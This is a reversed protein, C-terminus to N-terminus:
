ILKNLIEEACAKINIASMKSNKEINDPSFALRRNEQNMTQWRLSTASKRTPYFAVTRINLAGAIHLPGTSGSIFLDCFAIHKSFNVLGNTSHFVAHNVNEVLDSL